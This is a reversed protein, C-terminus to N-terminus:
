QISKLSAQIFVLFEFIKGKAKSVVARNPKIIADPKTIDAAVACDFVVAVFAVVLAAVFAVVL